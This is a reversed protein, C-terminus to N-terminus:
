WILTKRGSSSPAAQAKSRAQGARMSGPIAPLTSSRYEGNPREATPPMTLFYIGAWIAFFILTEM